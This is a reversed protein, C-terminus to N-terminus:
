QKSEHAHGIQKQGNRFFRQPPGSALRKSWRKAPNAYMAAHIVDAVGEDSSREAFRSQLMTRRETRRREHDGGIKGIDINDSNGESVPEVEPTTPRM